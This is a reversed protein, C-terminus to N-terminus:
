EKKPEIYFLWGEEQRRGWRFAEKKSDTWIDICLTGDDREVIASGRDLVKYVIQKEEPLGDVVVETGFPISRPMAVAGRSTKIGSAMTGWRPDGPKWWGEDNTYMTTELKTKVVDKIIVDNKLKIYKKLGETKENAKNLEAKLELVKDQLEKNEEFVDNVIEMKEKNQLIIDQLDKIKGLQKQSEVELRHNEMKYHEVDELAGKLKYTSVIMIVLTSLLAVGTIIKIGAMIKEKLPKVKRIAGLKSDYKYVSNNTKYIM